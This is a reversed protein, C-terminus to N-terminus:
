LHGLVFVMSISLREAKVIVYRSVDLLLVVTSSWATSRTPTATRVITASHILM